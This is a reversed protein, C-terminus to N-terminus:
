SYPENKYKLGVSSAEDALVSMLVKGPNALKKGAFERCM